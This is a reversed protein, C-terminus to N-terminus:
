PNKGSKPITAKYDNLGVQSPLWGIATDTVFYVFSLDRQFSGDVRVLEVYRCCDSGGSATIGEDFALLWQSNDSWSEEGVSIAEWSRAPPRLSQLTHTQTDYIIPGQIVYAVHLGDPSVDPWSFPGEFGSVGISRHTNVAFDYLYLSVDKGDASFLDIQVQAKGKWRWSVCNCHALDGIIPLKELSRDSAVFHYLTSGSIFLAHNGDPSWLPEPTDPNDITGSHPILPSLVSEMQGTDAALSYVNAGIILAHHGDPSWYVLSSAIDQSVPGYSQREDTILNESFLLGNQRYLVIGQSSLNPLAAYLSGEYLSTALTKESTQGQTDFIRYYNTLVKAM